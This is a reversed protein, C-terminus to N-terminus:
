VNQLGSRHWMEAERGKGDSSGKGEGKGEGTIIIVVAMQQDSVIPWARGLAECSNGSQFTRPIRPPPLKNSGISLYPFQPVLLNLTTGRKVYTTPTSSPNPRLFNLGSERFKIKSNISTFNVDCLISWQSTLPVSCMWM